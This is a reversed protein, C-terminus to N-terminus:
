SVALVFASVVHAANITIDTENSPATFVRHGQVEPPVKADARSLLVADIWLGGGADKYVETVRRIAVIDGNVTLLGYVGSNNMMRRTFWAPLLESTTVIM